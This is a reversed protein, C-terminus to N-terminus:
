SFRHVRKRWSLETLLSCSAVDKMGGKERFKHFFAQLLFNSKERSYFHIKVSMFTDFKSSHSASNSRLALLDCFPFIVSHTRTHVCDNQFSIYFHAVDVQKKMTKSWCM